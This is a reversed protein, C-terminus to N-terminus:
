KNKSKIVQDAMQKLFNSKKSRVTYRKGSKRGIHKEIGLESIIDETFGKWVRGSSTQLKRKQAQFTVRQPTKTM